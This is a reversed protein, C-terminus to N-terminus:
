RRPSAETRWKGDHHAARGQRSDERGQQRIVSRASVVDLARSSSYQRLRRLEDDARVRRAGGHRRVDRREDADHVVARVERWLHHPTTRGACRTRGTGHRGSTSASRDPGMGPCNRCVHAPHHSDLGEVFDNLRLKVDRLGRQMPCGCRGRTCNRCRRPNMSNAAKRACM